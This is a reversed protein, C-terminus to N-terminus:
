IVKLLIEPFQSQAGTPQKSFDDWGCCYSLFISRQSLTCQLHIYTDIGAAELPSKLWRAVSASSVVRHPKIIAVLLKTEKGCISQTQPRHGVWSDEM